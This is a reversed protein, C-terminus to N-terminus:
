AQLFPNAGIKGGTTVARNVAAIIASRVSRQVSPSAQVLLAFANEEDAVLAAWVHAAQRQEEPSLCDIEM